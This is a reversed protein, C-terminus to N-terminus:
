DGDADGPGVDFPGIAYIQIIVAGSGPVADAPRPGNGPECAALLLALVVLRLATM